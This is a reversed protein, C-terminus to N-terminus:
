ALHNARLYQCMALFEDRLDTLSQINTSFRSFKPDILCDSRGSKVAIGRSETVEGLCVWPADIDELEDIRHGPITAVIGYDGHEALLLSTLPFNYKRCFQRSEETFICESINWTMGVKNLDTLIQCAGFVGDSTDIMSQALLSIKKAAQLHVKPRYHRESFSDEPLGMVKRMALAPGNGLQGLLIVKDGVKAGKRTIPNQSQGMAVSSITTAVHDGTDGGLLGTNHHRLSDNLGTYFSEKYRIDNVKTWLTSVLLGIPLAGTAALDSLSVTATMWGVTYPDQYLGLWIEEYISDVTSVFFDQKPMPIIEADAENFENLQQSNRPSRELLSPLDKNERLHNISM